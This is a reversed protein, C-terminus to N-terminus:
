SRASGQQETEYQNRLQDKQLEFLDALDEARPDDAGGGGGGGGASGFQVQIERFAAEARQLHQLAKQEPGLADRSRHTGLQEEAARMAAGAKPLEEAITRFTSDNRVIGRGVLRQVLTDVQARLRSQSLLLTTFNDRRADSSMREGDRDVKFTAAIIERQRQSLEGPSAGQGDGQGPAQAEQSQTYSQDFPRVTMFYIDTKAVSGGSASDNDAARAYYSVLDGPELGLEELYFTHGATLDTRRAGKSYLPIVRESGGNVSYRLDVSALGYDDAAQVEAYVEEVATVRSDRGPKTFAITPGNDDLVDIVYDLSGRVTRGTTAELDIRYFGPKKVALTGTLAGDPGLTMPIPPEGEVVIQGGGVPMTTTARVTVSTGKPAAIDGGNDVTESPLGTYAPYHYELRLTQVYPLAVVDLHYVPSRVGNSEVYYATREVLDFLRIEFAGSDRAAILPIHVWASDAGRQVAIQAEESDFGHLRARVLQGGGRAVEANGPDVAIYYPRAEEANTWPAAIFRAGTRMFGPGNWLTLVGIVVIAALSALSLTISRGELGTGAGATRTRALARDVLRAVLRPSRASEQAGSTTSEVASLVMADLTPDHEEVYLAVQTESPRRLLPLFLWRVAFAALVLWSGVRVLAVTSPEFRFHQM